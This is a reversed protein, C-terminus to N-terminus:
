GKAPGDLEGTWGTRRNGTWGTIKNGTWGTMRNGTRRNNTWGTM